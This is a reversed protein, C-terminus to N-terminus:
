FAVSVGLFSAIDFFVQSGLEWRHSVQLGQALWFHFFAFASSYVAQSLFTDELVCVYGM